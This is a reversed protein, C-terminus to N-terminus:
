ESKVRLVELKKRNHELIGHIKRVMADIDQTWGNGSSPDSPDHGTGALFETRAAMLYDEAAEFHAITQEHREILEEQTLAM